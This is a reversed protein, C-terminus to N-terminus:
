TLTLTTICVFLEGLRELPLGSNGKDFSIECCMASKHGIAASLVFFLRKMHDEKLPSKATVHLHANTGDHINLQRM